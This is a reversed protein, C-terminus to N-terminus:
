EQANKEAIKKSLSDYNSQINDLVNNLNKEAKKQQYARDSSNKSFLMPIVQSLVAAGVFAVPILEGIMESLSDKNSM